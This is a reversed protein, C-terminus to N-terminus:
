KGTKSKGNVTAMGTENLMEELFKGNRSIEQNYDETKVPFKANFDGGPIVTGEM